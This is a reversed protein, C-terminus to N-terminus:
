LNGSSTKLPTELSALLVSSKLLIAWLLVEYRDSRTFTVFCSRIGFDLLANPKVLRLAFPGESTSRHANFREELLNECGGFVSTTHGCMTHDRFSRRSIPLDIWRDWLVQLSREGRHPNLGHIGMLRRRQFTRAGRGYYYM